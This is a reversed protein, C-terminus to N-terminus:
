HTLGCFCVSLPISIHLMYCEQAELAVINMVGRLLITSHLLTNSNNLGLHFALPDNYPYEM